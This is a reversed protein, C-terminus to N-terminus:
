AARAAETALYLAQQKVKEGHGFWASRLRNNDSRSAVHDIIYTVANLANWWTNPFFEAGPQKDILSLAMDATRSIDKNDNAGAIVAATKKGKKVDDTPFLRIFFERLAVDNYEKTTLFKSAQHFEEMQGQALGLAGKAAEPDFRNAHHMRYEGVGSADQLAFTLTNNCVVRVPTFKIRLSRGVVNPSSFLLYGKMHDERGLTFSDQINALAWIMKGNDLSGATEMKMGGEKVFEHFFSLVEEPQVPKYTNGCVGLPQMNDSRYLQYKEPVKQKTNMGIMPEQLINWNLGAKILLDDPTISDEVQVGLGHWPVQNAYAMTEVLHAM